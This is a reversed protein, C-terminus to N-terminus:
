GRQPPPAGPRRVRPREERPAEAEASLAKAVAPTVLTGPELQVAAAAPRAAREMERALDAIEDLVVHLRVGRMAAYADVHRPRIGRGKEVIAGNLGQRSVGMAAALKAQGGAAEAV